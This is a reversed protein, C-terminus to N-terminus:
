RRGDEEPPLRAFSGHSHRDDNGGMIFGLRNSADKRTALFARRRNAGSM